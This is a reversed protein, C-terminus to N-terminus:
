GAEITDIYAQYSTRLAQTQTSTFTRSVWLGNVLQGVLKFENHEPFSADILTICDVAGVRAAAAEVSVDYTPDNEYEKVDEVIDPFALFTDIYDRLGAFKSSDSIIVEGRITGAAMTAVQSQFYSRSEGMRAIFTEYNKYNKPTVRITM